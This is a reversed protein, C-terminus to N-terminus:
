PQTRRPPKERFGPLRVAFGNRYRLDVADVRTGAGALAGITRPYAAVFRALRADADDRGLEIALAGREGQAVLQWGGRASLTISQVGLKRAALLANWAVLRESMERSRGEPGAFQPLEGDYAAAFVEGQRNVLAGDNWRALPAHEEITVDLQSPWQRRLAVERVWPVQLLAARARELDLTFFTGALQGRIVAELHAVSAREPPGGLTVERLAFVPQRVLWILAAYVLMAAAIAALTVAAANLAKPDDWM